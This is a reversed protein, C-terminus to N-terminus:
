NGFIDAFYPNKRYKAFNDVERALEKRYPEYEISIALSKAARKPDNKAAWLSALNFFARAYNPKIKLANVFAKRAEDYRELELLTNGMNNWADYRGSDTKIAKKYAEIANEKRGLSDVLNGLNYWAESYTDNIALARRYCEESREYNGLVRNIAGLAVWTNPVEPSCNVSKEFCERALEDNGEEHYARGLYRWVVGMDLVSNAALRFYKGARIRDGLRTYLLSLYSYVKANGGHHEIDRNLYELASEYEGCMMKAFGALELAKRNEPDVKLVRTSYFLSDEFQSKSHHLTALHIEKEIDINNM